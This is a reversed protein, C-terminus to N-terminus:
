KLSKLHAAVTHWTLVPVTPKQNLGSEKLLYAVFEPMTRCSKMAEKLVRDYESVTDRCLKLFAPVDEIIGNTPDFPHGALIKKVPLKEVTDLTYLYEERSQYFAVGSSGTGRGQLSDGSFLIGTKEDLLSISDSDHGPTHVILLDGLHEGNKLVLDPEQSAIGPAIPVFPLEPAFRARIANMSPYPDRLKPASLEFAALKAKSIKKLPVNGSFHDAHIHTNIVFDIDDPTMGRQALSPILLSGIAPAFATDILINASDRLILFMGTWSTGCPYHLEIIEDKM